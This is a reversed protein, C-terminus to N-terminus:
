TPEDANAWLAPRCTDAIARRLSAYSCTSGSATPLPVRNTTDSSAPLAVMSSFALRARARREVARREGADDVLQLPELVLAVVELRGVARELQQHAPGGAPLLVEELDLRVPHDDSRGVLM